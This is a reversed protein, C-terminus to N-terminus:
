SSAGSAASEMASMREVLPTPVLETFEINLTYNGQRRISGSFSMDIWPVRMIITEGLRPFSREALRAASLDDDRWPFADDAVMCGGESLNVLRAAVVHKQRRDQSVLFLLVPCIADRRFFQRRELGDGLQTLAHRRLPAM